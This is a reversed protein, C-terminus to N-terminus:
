VLLKNYKMQLGSVYEQLFPSFLSPLFLAFLVLTMYIRFLCFNQLNGMATLFFLPITCTCAKGGLLCNCWQIKLIFLPVSLHLCNRTVRHQLGQKSLM